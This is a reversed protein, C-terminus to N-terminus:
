PTPPSIPLDFTFTAGHGLESEVRINGGHAEVIQRAITLGLGAGGTARARSRDARYFREFVYPLHDPVIGTGTDTVKVEVSDGAHSASITVTGGEPTHSLANNLLNRLVQGIREADVDVVPLDNALEMELKVGRAAFQPRLPGAAREVTEEVAVPQRELRLQGAEALALDQLDDILHGLEEAERYVLDLTETDREMVGDRLAEVYGRVNTLPTRLEHAIDSVMHRRLQENKAVSEAMANFAHALTGVEDKGGVAVRSTLDGAEMRRAAATLAEIPGIIRRSLGITLLLALLAAAGAALVLSRNVSDPFPDDVTHGVLPNVYIAGVRVGGGPGMGAGSGPRPERLVVPVPRGAWNSAAQQGLLKRGSDGVVKGSADVLVIHDGSIESIREVLSQVGEWGRQEVYYTGLVFEYRTRGREVRDEVYGQFQGTTTQSAITAVVGIAVLTVLLFGALLRIQLNRFM